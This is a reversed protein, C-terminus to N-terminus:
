KIDFIHGIYLNIIRFILFFITKTNKFYNSLNNNYKPNKAMHFFCFIKKVLDVRSLHGSRTSWFNKTRGYVSRFFKTQDLFLGFVFSFYFFYILYGFFVFVWFNKFSVFSIGFIYLIYLVDFMFRVVYTGFWVLNPWFLPVYMNSIM